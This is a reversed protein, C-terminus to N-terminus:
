VLTKRTSGLSGMTRRGAHGDLTAGPDSRDIAHRSSATVCVHISWWWNSLRTSYWAQCKLFVFSHWRIRSYATACVSFVTSAFPRPSCPVLPWRSDRQYSILGVRSQKTPVFLFARILVAIWVSLAFLNESIISSGVMCVFPFGSDHFLTAHDVGMLIVAGYVLVSGVIAM